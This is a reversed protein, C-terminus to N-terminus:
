DLNLSVIGCKELGKSFKKKMITEFGAREPQVKNPTITIQKQCKSKLKYCIDHLELLDGKNNLDCVLLISMPPAHYSEYKASKEM